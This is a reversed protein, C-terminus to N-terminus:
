VISFHSVGEFIYDNLQFLFHSLLYFLSLSLSEERRMNQTLELVLRIKTAEEKSPGGKRVKELLFQSHSHFSLVRERRRLGEELREQIWVAISVDNEVKFLSRNTYSNTDRETLSAWERLESTKRLDNNTQTFYFFIPSPLLYRLSISSLSRTLIWRNLSLSSSLSSPSSPYEMVGEPEWVLNSQRERKIDQFCYKSCKTVQSKYKFESSKLTLNSDLHFYLVFYTISYSIRINPCNPLETTEKNVTNDHVNSQRFPIKWM